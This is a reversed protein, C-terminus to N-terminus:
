KEIKRNKSSIFDIISYVHHALKDNDDSAPVCLTRGNELIGFRLVGEGMYFSPRFVPRVVLKPVPCSPRCIEPTKKPRAAIKQRFFQVPSVSIDGTRKYPLPNPVTNM